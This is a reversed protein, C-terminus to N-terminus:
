AHIRLLFRMENKTSSLCYMLQSSWRARLTDGGLTNVQWGHWGESLVDEDSRFCIRDKEVTHRGQNYHGEFAVWGKGDAENFATSLSVSPLKFSAFCVCSMVNSCTHEECGSLQVERELIM